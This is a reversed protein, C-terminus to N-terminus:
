SLYKRERWRLFGAFLCKITKNSDMSEFIGTVILLISSFFNIIFLVQHFNSALM